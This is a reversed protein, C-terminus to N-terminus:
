GDQKVGMSLRSLRAMTSTNHAASETSEYRNPSSVILPAKAENMTPITIPKSPETPQSRVRM